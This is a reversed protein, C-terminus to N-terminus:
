DLVERAQSVQDADMMIKLWMALTTATILSANQSALAIHEVSGCGREATTKPVCNHFDQDAVCLIGTNFQVSSTITSKVRIDLSSM